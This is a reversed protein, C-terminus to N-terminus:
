RRPDAARRRVEEVFADPHEPTILLLSRSGWPVLVAPLDYSAAVLADRGGRLSFWGSGWGVFGLGMQRWRPRLDRERDLDVRRVEGAHLAEWRIVQTALPAHLRLGADDLEVRSRAARAAFVELIVAALLWGAVLGVGAGADLLSAVAVGALLLGGVLLHTLVRSRVSPGRIRFTHGTAAAATM